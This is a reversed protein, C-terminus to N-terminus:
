ERLARRAYTYADDASSEANPCVALSSLPLLAFAADEGFYRVVIAVSTVGESGTAFQARAPTAMLMVAVVVRLLHNAM